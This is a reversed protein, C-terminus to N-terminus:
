KSEKKEAPKGKDISSELWTSAWNDVLKDFLSAQYAILVKSIKNEDKITYINEYGIKRREVIDNELLYKLHFSITSTSLRTTEVIDQFKVKKGVLIIMVIERLRKQRLLSLIKKEEIELPSHYYRTYHESKEEILVNGRVLYNLHYQLSTLPMDLIRQLERIHLGPNNKIAAYIKKRRENELIEEEFM